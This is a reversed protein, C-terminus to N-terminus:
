CGQGTCGAVAPRPAITVVAASGTVLLLALGLAFGLKRM